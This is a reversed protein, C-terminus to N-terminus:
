DVAHHASGTPSRVRVFFATSLRGDASLSIPVPPDGVFAQLKGTIDLTITGRATSVQIPPFAYTAVAGGFQVTQQQVTETGNPERHVLWLEADDYRALTM